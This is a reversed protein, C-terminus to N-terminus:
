LSTITYPRVKIPHKKNQHLFFPEEVKNIKQVKPKNHNTPHVVNSGISIDIPLYNFVYLQQDDAYALVYDELFPYNMDVDESCFHYKELRERYAESKFVNGLSDLKENIVTCTYKWRNLIENSSTYNEEKVLLEDLYQLDEQHNGYFDNLYNIDTYRKLYYLYRNIFASDKFLKVHFSAAYTKCYKSNAFCGYAEELIWSSADNNSGDYFIPELLKSEPNYYLRQNHWTLAHFSKSISAIAFYKASKEIDFINQDLSHNFQYEYMYNIGTQLDKCLISDTLYNKIQFASIGAAQMVPFGTHIKNKLRWKTTRFNHHEEFKLIPGNPRNYRQLLYPTFHEEFAYYGKFDDNYAVNIFEYKTSLVDEQECWKHLLYESINERIKPRQINFANTGNILSDKLKIRLSWRPKSIHDNWDGKLRAKAPIGNFIIPVYKKHKQDIYGAKLAAKRYSKITAFTNDPWDINHKALKNNPVSSSCNWLLLSLLPLLFFHIITRM